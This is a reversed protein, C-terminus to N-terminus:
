SDRRSKVKDYGIKTKGVDFCCLTTTRTSVITTSIICVGRRFNHQGGLIAFVIYPRKATDEEFDDSEENSAILTDPREVIYTTLRQWIPGPLRGAEPFLEWLGIGQSSM